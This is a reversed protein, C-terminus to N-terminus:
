KAAGLYDNYSYWAWGLYHPNTRHTQDLTKLMAPLTDGYDPYRLAIAIKAPGRDKLGDYAM